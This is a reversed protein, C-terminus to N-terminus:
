FNLIFPPSPSLSCCGWGWGSCSFASGSFGFRLRSVALGAARFRLGWVGFRSAWACFRSPLLGFARVGFGFGLCSARLAFARPWCGSGCARVGFGLSCVGRPLARLLAPRRALPSAFEFISFSVARAAARARRAARARAVPQFNSVCARLRAPAPAPSNSFRFRLRAGARSAACFLSGGSARSISKRFRLALRAVAGSRM